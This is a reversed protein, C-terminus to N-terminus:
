LDVHNSGTQVPVTEFHPRAALTARVENDSIQTFDEFWQGVARFDRPTQLCVVDDALTQFEECTERAAVPVAVIIRAPQMPRIAQIAARMSAGTALGDDILIVERGRIDLPGSSAGFIQARRRLEANERAIIAEVQAPSLRLAAILDQNLSPKGDFAIAGIALEEQGPAGLKCVLFIDLPAGLRRAVEAAVPVGGRPLALIIPDSGQVRGELKEALLRGAQARDRFTFSM